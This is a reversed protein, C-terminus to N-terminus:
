TTGNLTMRSRVLHRVDDCRHMERWTKRQGNSLSCIGIKGLWFYYYYKNVSMRDIHLYYKQQRQTQTLKKKKKKRSSDWCTRVVFYIRENSIPFTEMYGATLRRDANHMTQAVHKRPWIHIQTTRRRRCPACGDLCVVDCKRLPARREQSIIFAISLIFNLCLIPVACLLRRRRRWCLLLSFLFYVVNFLVSRFGLPSSSWMLDFELTNRSQLKLTKRCDPMPELM